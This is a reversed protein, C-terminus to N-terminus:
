LAGDKPTYASTASLAAAVSDEPQPTANEILDINLTVGGKKDTEHRRPLVRRDKRSLPLALISLLLIAAAGSGSVM